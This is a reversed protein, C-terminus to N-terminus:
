QMVRRRFIRAQMMRTRAPRDDAVIIEVFDEIGLDRVLRAVQAQFHRSVTINVAAPSFALDCAVETM